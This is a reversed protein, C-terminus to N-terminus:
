IFYLERIFCLNNCLQIKYVLEVCCNFSLERFLLVLKASCLGELKKAAGEGVTKQTVLHICFLGILCSKQKDKVSLYFTTLRCIGRQGRLVYVLNQKICMKSTGKLNESRLSYNHQQLKQGRALLLKKGRVLIQLKQDRKDEAQEYGLFQM